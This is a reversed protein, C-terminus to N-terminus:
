RIDLLDRPKWLRDVRRDLAEYRMFIPDNRRNYDSQCHNFWECLIKRLLSM